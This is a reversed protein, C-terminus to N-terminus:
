LWSSLFYAGVIPYFALTEEALGFTTGGLAMLTSLVIILIGEKGRFRHALYGVGENLSGSSNFIGIFGGIFLVFLILSVAEYIGKIPAFLVETIGQPTAKREQYTNPISIPNKIKQEKFKDLTISINRSTLAEQTAPVEQTKDVSQIVFFMKVRIMGFHIM